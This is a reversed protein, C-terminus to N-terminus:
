RQEKAYRLVGQLDKRVWEAATGPKNDQAVKMCAFTYLTMYFSNYLAVRGRLDDRLLDGWTVPPPSVMDRHYALTMVADPYPIAYRDRFVANDLASATLNKHNPINDVDLQAFLGEKIAPYGQTADTIVLDYAPQGPPSAKLKAIADWWGPDLVATAGTEEEFRSVFTERMTKEHGGAYVFIRLTQGAFPGSKAGRGPRCGAALGAALCAHLFQRRNREKPM